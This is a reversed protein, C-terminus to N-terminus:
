SGTMWKLFEHAGAGMAAGALADRLERATNRTETRIHQLVAKRTKRVWEVTRDHEAGADSKLTTM